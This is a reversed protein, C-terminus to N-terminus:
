WVFIDQWKQPRRDSHWAFGKLRKWEEPLMGVPYTAMDPNEFAAVRTPKGDRFYVRMNTSVGANVGILSTRNRVTDEETLYYCMQSNGLVDAVDAEGKKFKVVVTKGKVQNFKEADIQQVLMAEQLLRALKMGEKGHYAVITDATSQMSDYWLVPEKYMVVMSDKVWYNVSDSMGQMEGRFVKVRNYAKILEADNNETNFVYITDGHMYLTDEKKEKEVQIVLASDTVLSLRRKRDTEGYMGTCTVDNVTDWIVVHGFARGHEAMDDYYLTDSTLVKSGNTVKSGKVSRSYRTDTNYWGRESYITTSDSYIWTPSVFRSEKTKMNYFLTDTVLKSGSDLLVVDDYIEFDETDSHYYGRRSDLTRMGNVTHGWWRYTAVSTNRDYTLQPSKLVTKGDVFVVTDAWINVIKTQGNYYMSDGTITTTDDLIIKIHRYATFDNKKTNLLASDAFLWMGEHEAKVKQYLIWVDADGAKRSGMGAEYNIVKQGMSVGGGLLVVALLVIIKLYKTAM